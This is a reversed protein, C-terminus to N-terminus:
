RARVFALVEDPNDLAALNVPQVGYYVLVKRLFGSLSLGEIVLLIDPHHDPIRIIYFPM